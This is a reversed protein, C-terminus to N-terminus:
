DAGFHDSRKLGIEDNVIQDSTEQGENKRQEHKAIPVQHHHRHQGGQGGRKHRHRRERHQAKGDRDQISDNGNENKNQSQCVANVEGQMKAVTFRPLGNQLADFLRHGNDSGGAGQCRDCGGDGKGRKALLNFRGKPGSLETIECEFRLEKCWNALLDIVGKNSMSLSEDMSSISPAAILQQYMSMFSPLSMFFELIIIWELQM